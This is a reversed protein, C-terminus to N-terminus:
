PAIKATVEINGTRSTAPRPLSWNMTKLINGEENVVDISVTGSGNVSDTFVEKADVLFEHSTGGAVVASDTFAFESGMSLMLFLEQDFNIIPLDLITGPDIRDGGERSKGPNAKYIARWYRANGYTREAISSLTDGAVIEYTGGGKPHLKVRASIKGYDGADGKAKISTARALYSSAGDGYARQEKGPPANMRTNIARTGETLAQPLLTNRVNSASSATQANLWTRAATAGDSGFTSRDNAHYIEHQQTIDKSWYDDRRPRGNLDGMNPTLDKAVYQYNHAKIDSDTDGGINVESDPGTNARVQWRVRYDFDGKVTYTGSNFITGFSSTIKVNEWAARSRTVGFGTPTAGGPNVTTKYAVTSSVSSDEEEQEDFEEEEGLIENVFIPEEPKQEGAPTDSDETARAIVQTFPIRMTQEIQGDPLTTDSIQVPGSKSSLLPQPSSPQKRADDEKMQLIVSHLYHNGFTQGIQRAISQRQIPQYRRNSLLTAHDRKSDADTTGTLQGDPSTIVDLGTQGRTTAPSKSTRKRKSQRQEKAQHPHPM